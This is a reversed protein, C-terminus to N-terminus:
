LVSIIALLTNEPIFLGSREGQDAHSASMVM